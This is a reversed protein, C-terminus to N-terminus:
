YKQELTRKIAGEISSKWEGTSEQRHIYASSYWDCKGESNSNWIWSSTHYRSLIIHTPIDMAAALHAVATSCSIMLDIKSIARYVTDWNASSATDVCDVNNDSCLGQELSNLGHQFSIVRIGKAELLRELLMIGVSKQPGYVTRSTRWVVGVLPQEMGERNLGEKAQMRQLGGFDINKAKENIQSDGLYYPIMGASIAYDVQICDNRECESANHSPLWIKAIDSLQPSIDIKFYTEPHQSALMKALRLYFIEEGLGQERRILVTCNSEKRWRPIADTNTGRIVTQIAYLCFNYRTYERLFLGANGQGWKARARMEMTKCGIALASKYWSICDDFMLLRFYAQAVGAHLHGPDAPTIKSALKEVLRRAQGIEGALVISEGALCSVDKVRKLHSDNRGTELQSYLHSGIMRSVEKAKRAEGRWLLARLLILQIREKAVLSLDNRNSDKRSWAELVELMGSSRWVMAQVNEALSALDRLECSEPRIGKLIAEKHGTDRGVGHDFLALTALPQLASIEDVSLYAEIFRGAARLQWFEKRRNELESSM